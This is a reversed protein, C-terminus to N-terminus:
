AVVWNFDYNDLYVWSITKNYTPFIDEAWASGTAQVVQIDSGLATLEQAKPLVDVTIFQRSNKRALDLFYRTSGEGRESGIEVFVEDDANPLNLYNHTKLYAAGM